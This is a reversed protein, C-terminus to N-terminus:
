SIVSFVELEEIHVQLFVIVIRHNKIYIQNQSM